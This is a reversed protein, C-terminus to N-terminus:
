YAPFGLLFRLSVAFRFINYIGELNQNLRRQERILNEVLVEMRISPPTNAPIGGIKAERRLRKVVFRFNKFRRRFKRAEEATKRARFIRADAVIEAVEIVKNL